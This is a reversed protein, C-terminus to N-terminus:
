RALAIAEEIILEDAGYGVATLLRPFWRCSTDPGYGGQDKAWATPCYGYLGNAYGAFLVKLPQLSRKTALGIDSYPEFPVGVVRVDNIGAVFLESPLARQLTGDALACELEHAWDLMALAVQEQMRNAAEVARRRDAEFDEVLQQLAQPTPPEDLPVELMKSTVSLAVDSSMPAAQLADLAAAAMREGIERADEFTGTGWGHDRHVVPDVDGSTGQLYLAIGGRKRELVGTVEGPFDASFLLNSPGLVVPHTGYNVLTAIVEDNEAGEAAGISLAILEEDVGRTGDQRNYGIDKVMTSAVAFQAPKLAAPLSVVLDVIKHQAEALWAADIHGMVGRLPMSAPGSHTHTCSILVNTPPIASKKGIRHRMDAVTAPTFGILDCVVIALKTKGDDLLVARAMIPDHVGTTPSIRAAFGSMWGGVPPSLDVQGASAKFM